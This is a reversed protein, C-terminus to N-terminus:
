EEDFHVSNRLISKPKSAATTTTAEEDNACQGNNQIDDIRMLLSSVQSNALDRESELQKMKIESERRNEMMQTQLHLADRDSQKQTLKQLSQIESHIEKYKQGDSENENLKDVLLKIQADYMQQRESSDRNLRSLKDNVVKWEIEQEAVKQRLEGVIREQENHVADQRERESQLVDIENTLNENQHHESSLSSRFVETQKQIKSLTQEFDNCKMTLEQNERLVRSNVRKLADNEANAAKLQMGMAETTQLLKSFTDSFSMYKEHMSRYEQRMTDDYKKVSSLHFQKLHQINAGIKRVSRISATSATASHKGDNMSM